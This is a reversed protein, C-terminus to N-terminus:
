GRISIHVRAGDAQNDIRVGPVGQLAEEAGVGRPMRALDRADIVTTAAPNDKLPISQRSAEVFVTFPNMVVPTDAEATALLRGPTSALVRTLPARAADGPPAACTVLAPFATALAVLTAVRRLTPLIRVPM